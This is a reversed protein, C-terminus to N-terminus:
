CGCGSGTSSTTMGDPDRMYEALLCAALDLMIEDSRYLVKQPATDVIRQWAKQQEPTLHDPPSTCLQGTPEPDIRERQPDHRFAGRARLIATATRPRAM